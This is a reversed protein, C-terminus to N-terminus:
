NEAIESFVENYPIELMAFVISTNTKRSEAEEILMLPKFHASKASFANHHRLTRLPM